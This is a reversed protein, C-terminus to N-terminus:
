SNTAYHKKTPLVHFAVLIYMMKYYTPIRRSLIFKLLPMEKCVKNWEKRCEKLYLVNYLHYVSAFRLYSKAFAKDKVVLQGADIIGILRDVNGKMLEYNRKCKAVTKAQTISDKNYWYNYYDKPIYAINKCHSFLQFFTLMDEGMTGEPFIIKNYCTNRFMKNCLSWSDRQFLCNETFEKIDAFHCGIVITRNDETVKAFDCVVVDADAEKAKEYMARYMDKDVWDDSDCHVVYEGTANLVGWKRVAPLGSNQEMRHIRVQRKRQPYEELVSYLIEMSMDTTCDDVFLYEINDLTQEFLSRACREIYGEVGYVPVIVSVKAM